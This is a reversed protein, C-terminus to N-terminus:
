RYDGDGHTTDRNQRDSTKEINMELIEDFSSGYHQAIGELTSILGLTSSHLKGRRKETLAGGDDRILKKVSETVQGTFLTLDSILKLIPRDNPSDLQGDPSIGLEDCLRALYWTIDGLEVLVGRRDLDSPEVGTENIEIDLLKVVAENSEGALGLAPFVAPHGLEPYIATEAIAQSYEKFHM